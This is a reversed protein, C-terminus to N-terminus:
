HFSRTIEARPAFRDVGLRGPKSHALHPCDSITSAFSRKFSTPRIAQRAGVAAPVTIPAM